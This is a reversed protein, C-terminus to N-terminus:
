ASTPHGCSAACPGIYVPSHPASIFFITFARLTADVALRKVPGKPLMPKM